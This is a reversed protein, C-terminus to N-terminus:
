LENEFVFEEGEARAALQTEIAIRLTLDGAPRSELVFTQEAAGPTLHWVEDIAGHDLVVSDGDRLARERPEIAIELDGARAHALRFEVPFNHPASAGLWPIFQISTADFRAKWDAGRAWIAGDGDEDFHVRTRDIPSAVQLSPLGGSQAKDARRSAAGARLRASDADSRTAAGDIPAQTKLDEMVPLPRPVKSQAQCWSALGVVTLPVLITSLAERSM